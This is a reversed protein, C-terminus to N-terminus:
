LGLEAEFAAEELRQKVTALFRAADAGDVLRHDYTLALYVMSRIAITEGLNPDDLVMARKVVTGTGLIGVQPQNIIPTDTLAGRSGTNTLTFTGGGLDDPTIKNNRTRAAIDNMARTLGAINLEDANHVVPVLLGRETDVALGLHVHPHYTIEGKETDISANLKPHSKLAEITAKAFFPLFSLKQGERQEFAGKAHERIRAIRTVDVEVWCSLQASVQLSEVMRAAIVKRLRSMPQTGSLNQTSAQVAAPATSPRAAPASAQAQPAPPAPAPAAAQTQQADQAARAADLVDQKRIRGGVGTGSLGALDINNDAALKRVLPTVYNSVDVDSHGNTSAAPAPAPPPAQPAPAPAAGAPAPQPPAAPAPAAPAPAAPAPAAAPVSGAAGILGLQVGVAVTQDAEVDISLLVGSAPAPLETDVKDTSIELLPEDEAVTDGINKLWRTVTGETVSEGLAPLLVPTGSGGADPAPAVPAPAQPAPAQPATSTTPVADAPRAPGSASEGAEGIVALEAGVAVTEDEAVSIKLLVGSAPAPIETDVKDTSIELLPEDAVVADGEKKLWRTVTGETVSEGLAPLTVSVPM